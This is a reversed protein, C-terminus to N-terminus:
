PRGHVQEIEDCLKLIEAAFERARAVSLLAWDEVAVPSSNNVEIWVLGKHESASVDGQNESM